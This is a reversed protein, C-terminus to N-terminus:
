ENKCELSNFMQTLKEIEIMHEIIEKLMRVEDDQACSCHNLVHALGENIYELEKVTFTM